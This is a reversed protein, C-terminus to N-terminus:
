TRRRAPPHVSQPTYPRRAWVERWGCCHMPIKLYTQSYFSRTDVHKMIGDYEQNDREDGGEEPKAPNRYTGGTDRLDQKDDEQDTGNHGEEHAEASANLKIPLM